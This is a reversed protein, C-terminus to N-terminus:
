LETPTADLAYGLAKWRQAIEDAPYFGEHRALESGDAALFVQTPILHVNFPEAKDPFKWVDIFDVDLQDGYMLRVEDLVPMMAQCSACSDSGLEVLRPLAEITVTQVTPEQAAAKSPVFRLAIVGVVAVATGALIFLKRNQFSSM